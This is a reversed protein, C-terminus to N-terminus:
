LYGADKAAEVGRALTAGAAQIEGVERSAIAANVIRELEVPLPNQTLPLLERAYEIAREIQHRDLAAAILPWLAMWDCPYRNPITRWIELARRGSEETRDLDHSRWAVWSATAHAM